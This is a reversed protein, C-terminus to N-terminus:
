DNAMSENLTDMIKQRQKDTYQSWMAIQELTRKCGVCKGDIVKCIKNCPSKIRFDRIRYVM